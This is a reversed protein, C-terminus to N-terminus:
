VSRSESQKRLAAIYGTVVEMREFTPTPIETAPYGYMPVDGAWIRDAFYGKHFLSRDLDKM